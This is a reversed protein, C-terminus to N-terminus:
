QTKSLDSLTLLTVNDVKTKKCELQDYSHSFVVIAYIPSMCTHDGSRAIKLYCFDISHISRNNSLL